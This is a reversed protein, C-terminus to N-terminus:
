RFQNKWERLAGLVAPGSADAAGRSRAASIVDPADCRM